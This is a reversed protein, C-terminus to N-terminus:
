KGERAELYRLGEDWGKGAWEERGWTGWCQREERSHGQHLMCGAERGLGLFWALLREWDGHRM